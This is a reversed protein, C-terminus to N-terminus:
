SLYGLGHVELWSKVNFQPCKKLWESPDIIGDKNRDPSLDRHGVIKVDGLTNILDCILDLIAANQAGTRDDKEKGGIYSIHVSDRNFGKVGNTVKDLSAIQVVNGNPEIIYHYGPSKWGLNNKWYNQIAKVTAKQSTATCHIVIRNIQRM